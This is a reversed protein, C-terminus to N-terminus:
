RVAGKLLAVERELIPGKAYKEVAEARAAEGLRRALAPDDLVRRVAVRMSAEDEAGCVLGTREHEIIGEIRDSVICPLGLAMAELLAKTHGESLSPLIFAAAAAAYTPIADNPVPPHIAARTLNALWGREPGDGICWFLAGADRCARAARILNKEEVLRGWYVVRRTPAPHPEPPQPRFLETDVWNPLAVVKARPCRAALRAAQVPNPVIVAAARRLVLARLLRWKPIQKLDGHIRAIQEYQAGLSVVFPIRWILNATLAPVAGLLSMCRLVSMERWYWREGLPRRLARFPGSPGEWYSNVGVWRRGDHLAGIHQRELEVPLYSVYRIGDFAEGWAAFYSALRGLQGAQAMTDLGSGVAPLVGLIM